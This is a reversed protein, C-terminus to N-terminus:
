PDRDFVKRALDGALPCMNKPYQVKLQLINDFIQRVDKTEYSFPNFGGILECLLVGWSWVDCAFSYGNSSASQKRGITKDEELDVQRLVEPASYGPTGCRTYTRLNESVKLRKAFGFDIL